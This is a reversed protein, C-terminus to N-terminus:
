PLFTATARGGTFTLGSDTTLVGAAQAERGSNTAVLPIKGTKTILRRWCLGQGLARLDRAQGAM